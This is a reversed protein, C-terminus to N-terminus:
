PKASAVPADRNNIDHIAVWRGDREKRYLIIYKGIATVPQNTRPDTSTATYAGRSYALDGGKSVEVQVPEFSLAFNRDAFTKSVRARIADKGSIIPVGALEVFADDAYHSMIKDIDKAQWARAWQIESERIAGAAASRAESSENLEPKLLSWHSHIIKWSGNIRQFVETSNWRATTKPADGVQAGYDNLNFTLVAMDGSQQVRPNIMEVREVKIKGTYPAMYQKLDPQGDIRRETMHDFYTQDSAMIEFFGQPDGKGWRDLAAREMGIITQAVDSQARGQSGLLFWGGILLGAINTRM